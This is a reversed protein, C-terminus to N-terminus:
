IAWVHQNAKATRWFWSAFSQPMVRAVSSSSSAETLRGRPMLHFLYCHSVPPGTSLSSHLSTVRPSVESSKAAQFGGSSCYPLHRPLSGNRDSASEHRRLVCVCVCVLVQYSLSSCLNCLTFRMVALAPVNRKAEGRERWLEQHWQEYGGRGVKTPSRKKQGGTLRGGAVEVRGQQRRGKFSGWTTVGTAEKQWKQGWESKDGGLIGTVKRDGRRGHQKWGELRTRDAEGRRRVTAGAFGCFVRATGQRM